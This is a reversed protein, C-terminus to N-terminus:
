KQNLLFIAANRKISVEIPTYEFGITRCIRTGDYYCLKNASKVTERTISPPTGSLFRNIALLNCAVKLVMNGAFYMPRKVHLNDAIHNFFERFTMNEASLIYRQNKLNEWNDDAMLTIIVSTVDRIDVFGTGGKTYFKFGKRVKTFFLSSGSKWDGPGIIVSPNVIVANLGQLIARWVEMEALYKSETYASHERTNRWSHDENAEIGEPPSGIAAISSVHCFKPIGLTLALDVLNQTGMCNTHIMKERDRPDFSIIAAAHYIQDIGNLHKSLSDKDLINGEVWDIRQLLSQYEPNYFSFIKEIRNLSSGPRILARIKDGKLVMEYLLHAGVMGTGGTVFIM